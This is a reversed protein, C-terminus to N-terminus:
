FVKNERDSRCEDTILLKLAKLRIHIVEQSVRFKTALTKCVKSCLSMNCPQKDLRLYPFNRFALQQGIIAYEEILQKEPVLLFSAFKNAQTELHQLNDASIQGSSEELTDEETMVSDSISMLRAEKLIKSHLIIHGLEHALTFRWRPSEEPLNVSLRILHKEFNVDGLIGDNLRQSEVTYSLKETIEVLAGQLIGVHNARNIGTYLYLRNLIELDNLYPVILASQIPWEFETRLFDIFSTYTEYGVIGKFPLPIDVKNDYLSARVKRQFEYRAEIAIRRVIWDETNDKDIICLGIRHAQAFRYVTEQFRSTAFIYGKHAGVEGMQQFFNRIKTGDIDRSYDKCEILYLCSIEDSEPLKTEISIDFTIALDTTKSTYKKKKFIQSYPCNAPFTHKELQKKLILFVREEFADGKKTTNNKRRNAM